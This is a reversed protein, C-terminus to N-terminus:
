RETQARRRMRDALCVPTLANDQWVADPCDNCIEIEGDERLTPGVQLVIHKDLLSGGQRSYALLRVNEMTHGGTCANLILQLRFQWSSPKFFFLSRRQFLRFARALVVDSWGARLSSHLSGGESSRGVAVLATLWRLSKPDLNSAIGAYPRLGARKLVARFDEISPEEGAEASCGQVAHNVVRLGETVSGTAGEFRRFDRYGTVLLFDLHSSDLLEEIVAELEDLRNKYAIWSLGVAIGARHVLQAKEDRLQRWNSQPANPGIDPREQTPQIHLLVISLGAQRLSALFTPTLQTGNTLLAVKLNQRAVLEVISRIEPHLTPEGGSLTVTQLRRLRRISDLEVKIEELPKFGANSANYCGSCTINCPRGVDLLAHPVWKGNWPLLMVDEESM